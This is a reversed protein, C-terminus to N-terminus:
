NEEVRSVREGDWFLTTIRDGKKLAQQSQITKGEKKTITFGRRLVQEPSLLEINKTLHTLEEQKSQLYRNVLRPLQQEMQRLQDQSQYLQRQTQHTIQQQIQRVHLTQYQVQHQALEQLRGFVREVRAEFNLNYQILYDAVATPTKLATHATMDAVSEDIEHGIGTFVPLAATAIAKAVEFHDFAALDLRAGGGRIVVAVDFRKKQQNILELAEGVEAAAREGQVASAFLEIEYDYGYDNERLQHVFDQYGAANENSVVAIRQLVQPLEHTKNRGILGLQLLRDITQQRKQALAGLTFTADVDQIVLSLGYRESYEVKVFILVQQGSQLVQDIILGKKKKISKYDKAWLVARSQALVQNSVEDKQLLDMYVQGRSRSLQSIECQIWLPEPLNLAVVRKIFQNLELLTYKTM